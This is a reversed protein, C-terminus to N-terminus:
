AGVLQSVAVVQGNHRYATAGTAPAYVNKLGPALASLVMGSVICPLIQGAEDYELGEVKGYTNSVVEVSVDGIMRWGRSEVKVAVRAIRGSPQITVEGSPTRITIAYPTLNIMKNSKINPIYNNYALFSVIYLNNFLKHFNGSM